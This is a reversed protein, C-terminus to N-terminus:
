ECRIGKMTIAQQLSKEPLSYPARCQSQAGEGWQILLEGELPLGSLYIQGDDGVM